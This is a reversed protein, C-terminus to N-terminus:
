SEMLNTPFQRMSQANTSSRLTNKIYPTLSTPTAHGSISMISSLPVGEQVMETIATRRLDMLTLEEPLDAAKMIQTGMQSLGSLSYPQLRGKVTKPVPAVYPQFGFDDHQQKLMAQLGESTPLTITAGRKSQTLTLVGADMDYSDWTLTRMDGLRQGWEYAMYVIVGLNRWEFKSFATNLFARVHEREWVVKRSRQKHTKVQTFPNYTTFGHRIAYNFLLRYVALSHNALSISNEAHEEYVKQCMPTMINGIKAGELPVGGLRSKYWCQLYYLYDDKTKETLNSFSLSNCYSKILDKIKSKKTLEKLYKREARWETLLKNQEEVYACAQEYNTGLTTRKVVGAEVADKPPNYRYVNRAEALYPPKM